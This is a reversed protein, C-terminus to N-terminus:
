FIFTDFILSFNRFLFFNKIFNVLIFLLTSFAKVNRSIRIKNHCFINKYFYKYTHLILEYIYM